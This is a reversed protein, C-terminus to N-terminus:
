LSIVRTYLPSSWQLNTQSTDDMYYKYKFCYLSKGAYEVLEYKQLIGLNHFTNGIM